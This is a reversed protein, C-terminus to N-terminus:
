ATQPPKPAPRLRVVFPYLHCGICFGFAANLYVAALLAATAIVGLLRIGAAFGVVGPVLLVLGVLNAFRVPPLPERETGPRVHRAVVAAFVRGYPNWRPRNLAGIAFVIAQLTLVVAATPLSFGSVILGLVLVATSVWAGFRTARVDVGDAQNTNTISM